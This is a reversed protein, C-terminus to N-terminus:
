QADLQAQQFNNNGRRNPRTIGSKNEKRPRVSPMEALHDEKELEAILEILHKELKDSEEKKLSREKSRGDSEAQWLVDRMVDFYIQDFGKQIVNIGSNGRALVHEAANLIWRLSENKLLPASM